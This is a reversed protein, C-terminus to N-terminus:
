KKKEDKPKAEGKAAKGEGEGAEAEEPKKQKIVEPETAEAGAEAPTPAVEEKPIVCTIVPLEPDIIVKVGQPLNLDKVHIVKGVELGSIDVPIEPPIDTPLCSVEVDWRLHELVGGGQKVGVSDGKFALPVTVTIQKTLSVQHFDVHIIRHTVPNHQLEKIVVLSEPQKSSDTLRLTILANEGAKTQLVGKLDKAIVQIAQSPKGEGYLVAPIAGTRRVESSASSGTSNRVVAELVIKETQQAMTM